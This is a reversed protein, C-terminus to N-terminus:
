RQEALLSQLLEPSINLTGIKEARDALDRFALAILSRPDAAGSSAALLTRWDVEKLPELTARLTDARAQAEKKQNEVRQSVLATRQEEVAIEAAMQTERVTRRKQEVAIETNLENEKIKRELEVAANRRAFVAEDAKRLLDERADAQMAKTMEPTGKLALISVSLVEVGLMAVTESGRLGTLVERLLEDSRVLLEGLRHRQTCARALIQAAHVLRDGLKQPDDSRPEGRADVSYDLLSALRKPDTVRYTLQGQVNVDQFDATVENFLFPVDTSALPVLAVTSTPGFYFFSLGAGERAVRGRRYLLVYSTPPAKLYKWGLM